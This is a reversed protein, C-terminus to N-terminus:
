WFFSQFVSDLLTALHRSLSRTHTVSLNFTDTSTSQRSILMSQRRCSKRYWAWLCSCAQCRCNGCAVFFQQCTSLWDVCVWFWISELLGWLNGNAELTEQGSQFYIKRWLNSPIMSAFRQANHWRPSVTRAPNNGRLLTQSCILKVCFSEVLQSQHYGPLNSFLTALLHSETFWHFHSHCAYM